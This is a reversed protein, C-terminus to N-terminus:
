DNTHGGIKRQRIRDREVVTFKNLLEIEGLDLIKLLQEAPEEPYEPEFRFYVVGFAFFGYHYILEGYDRDFTLIVCRKQQAYLIVESDEVSPFDESVSIVDYGYKRLVKISKIPFNENALFRM